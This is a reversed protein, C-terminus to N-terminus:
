HKATTYFDKLYAPELYAVDAFEEKRFCEASLVGLHKSSHEFDAIHSIDPYFTKLKSSGNGFFFIPQATWEDFVGPELVLSGPKLLANFDFDYIATFVEMRRADLMPCLLVPTQEPVKQLLYEKAAYIMVELTNIALLPKKLAYCWGKAAAMSVRLGTYSGPGSTIAVADIAAPKLSLEFLMAQIAVHLFSAHDKQNNSERMAQVQGNKSICVSAHETATDINLIMAM